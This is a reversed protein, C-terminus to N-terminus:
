APLILPMNISVNLPLQIDSALLAPGIACNCGARCFQILADFVQLWMIDNATPLVLARVVARNRRNNECVELLGDRQKPAARQGSAAV